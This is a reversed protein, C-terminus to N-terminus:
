FCYIARKVRVWTFISTFISAFDCPASAEGFYSHKENLRYKSIQFNNRHGLRVTLSKESHKSVKDM